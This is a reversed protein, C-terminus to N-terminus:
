AMIERQWSVSNIDCNERRRGAACAGRWLHRLPHLAAFHHCGVHREGYGSLPKVM